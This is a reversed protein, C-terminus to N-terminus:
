GGSGQPLVRMGVNGSRMSPSGFRPQGGSTLLYELADQVVHASEAELTGSAPEDV